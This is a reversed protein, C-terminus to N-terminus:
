SWTPNPSLSGASFYSRFWGREGLALAAAFVIEDPSNTADTGDIALAPLYLGRLRSSTKDKGIATKKLLKLMEVMMDQLKERRSLSFEISNMGMIGGGRGKTQRRAKAQRQAEEKKMEEVFAMRDERRQLEAEAEQRCRMEKLQENVMYAAVGVGVSGLAVKNM